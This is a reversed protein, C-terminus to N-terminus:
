FSRNIRLWDYRDGSKVIIKKIKLETAGKPLVNIEIETGPEGALWLRSYFEKQSEIPRGLLGLILDGVKIGAKDAPGNDTVRTVFLRGNAEFTNVGIWPRKPGSRRGSRLLDALIPKLDNVPIFMNGPSPVNPAVADNVLLSGIGLLRGDEGILAAGSHFEHPPMTFIAREVMYEWYGTFVRRSVVSAASIPQQGRRAAILVQDRERLRSSNGLQMPAADLKQILRLLGFGTEHDYAIVTASIQKGEPGTILASEAELILYGVTLIIGEEDILVGSGQRQTGLFSATRADKPIQAEIAVVASLVDKEAAKASPALLLLTGVLVTILPNAREFDLIGRFM